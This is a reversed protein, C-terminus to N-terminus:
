GPALKHLEPEVNRVGRLGADHLLADVPEHGHGLLELQPRFNKEVRRALSPIPSARESERRWGSANSAHGRAIVKKAVELEDPLEERFGRFEPLGAFEILCQPDQQVRLFFQEGPRGALEDRQRQVFLHPQQGGTLRHFIGPRFLDAVGRQQALRRFDISGAIAVIKRGARILEGQVDHEGDRDFLGAFRLLQDGFDARQQRLHRRLLEVVRHLFQERLHTLNQRVTLPKSLNFQVTALTPPTAAGGGGWGTRPSGGPTAGGWVRGPSSARVWWL